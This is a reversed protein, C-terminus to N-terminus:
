AGAEQKKELICIVCGIFAEKTFALKALPLLYPRLPEEKYYLPVLASKQCIDRFRKASMKNIYSFYENGKKDRSIRFNIRKEADALGSVSLKYADILVKDDFFLHVWPIAITDTLHAGYPHNYPPFNIYIRGGPKLVRFAEDLVRSPLAVHEMADNMIVSDFRNDEFPMDAADSITFSFRDDVGHHAAFKEAEAKYDSVIDVATVSKAGHKLYYVSKGCAGAGIDLVHKNELIEKENFAGAFHGLTKPAREYEWESYSKGGTNQTNFPHVVPRLIRNLRLVTRASM